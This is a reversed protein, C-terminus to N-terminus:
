FLDSLMKRLNRIAYHMRGLATNLPIGIMESIERFTLGSFHKLVLVQKQEDPLKVIAEGLRSLKELDEVKDVPDDSTDKLRAQQETLIKEHYEMDENGSNNNAVFKRRRLHDIALNHAIRFLYSKFRDRPSYRHIKEIFRCFTDQVLDGAEERNGTMRYLYGYIQGSYKNYLVSLAELNGERYKEVLQDDNLKEM